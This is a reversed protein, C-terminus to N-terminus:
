RSFWIDLGVPSAIWEPRVSVIVPYYSLKEIAGLPCCKDTSWHWTNTLWDLMYSYSWLLLIISVSRYLCNYTCIVNSPVPNTFLHIPSVATGSFNLHIVWCCCVTPYQEVATWIYDAWSSNHHIWCSPIFTAIWTMTIIIYDKSVLFLHIKM